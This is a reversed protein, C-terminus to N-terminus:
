DNLQNMADPFFVGIALVADIKDDYSTLEEIGADGLNPGVVKGLIDGISAKAANWSRFDVLHREKPQPNEVHDVVKADISFIDPRSGIATSTLFTSLITQYVNAMYMLAFMIVEAIFNM